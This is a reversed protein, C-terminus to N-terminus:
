PQIFHSLSCQFHELQPQSCYVGIETHRLPSSDGPSNIKARLWTVSKLAPELQWWTLILQQAM